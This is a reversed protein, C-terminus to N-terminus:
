TVSWALVAAAAAAVAVVTARQAPGSLLRDPRGSSAIPPPRTGLEDSTCFAPQGYADAVFTNIANISCNSWVPRSQQLCPACPACRGLCDPVPPHECSSCGLNHIGRVATPSMIFKGDACPAPPSALDHVAGLAHGIEHAMLIAEDAIAARYESVGAGANTCAGAVYAIGIVDRNSAEVLDVGTVLHVM